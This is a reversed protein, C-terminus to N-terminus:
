ARSCGRSSCSPRPVFALPHNARPTCRPNHPPAARVVASTLRNAEDSDQLNLPGFAGLYQVLSHSRPQARAPVPRPRACHQGRQPPVRLCRRRQLLPHPVSPCTAADASPTCPPPLLSPGLELVAELLKIAERRDPLATIFEKGGRYLVQLVSWIFIMVAVTLLLRFEYLDKVANAPAAAMIWFAVLAAIGQCLRLALMAYVSFRYVCIRGFCQARPPPHQARICDPMHGVRRGLRAPPWGRGAGAGM